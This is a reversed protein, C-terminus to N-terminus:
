KILKWENDEDIFTLTSSFITFEDFMVVPEGSLKNTKTPQHKEITVGLNFFYVKMIYKFHEIKM